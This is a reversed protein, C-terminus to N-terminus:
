LFELAALVPGESDGNAIHRLFERRIATLWSELGFDTIPKTQLLAILLGEGTVPNAGQTGLLEALPLQKPWGSAHRTMAAGVPASHRILMEPDRLGLAVAQAFHTVANERRGMAQYAMAINDHAHLLPFTLIVIGKFRQDFGDFTLCADLFIKIQCSIIELDQGFLKLLQDFLAGALIERM